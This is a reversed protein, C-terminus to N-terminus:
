RRALEAAKGMGVIAPVNESGSRRNNEQNGGEMQPWCGCHGQPCLAGGRREPRLVDPAALTLADVNMARVNLPMM